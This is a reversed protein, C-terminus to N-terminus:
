CWRTDRKARDPAPLGGALHGTPRSAESGGHPASYPEAAARILGLTRPTNTDLADGPIVRVGETRLSLGHHTQDVRRAATRAM